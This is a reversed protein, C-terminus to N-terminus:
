TGGSAREEYFLVSFVDSGTVHRVTPVSAGLIIGFNSVRWESGFTARGPIDTEYRLSWPRPWKGVWIM